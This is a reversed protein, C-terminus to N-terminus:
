DDEDTGGALVRSAGPDQSGGPRPGAPRGLKSAKILFWPQRQESAVVGCHRVIRDLTAAYEAFVLGLRAEVEHRSLRDTVETKVPVCERQYRNRAELICWSAADFDTGDVTFSQAVAEVVAEAQEAMKLENANTRADLLALQDGGGRRVLAALHELHDGVRELEVTCRSLAQALLAQRRSLYGNALSRLFTQISSRIEDISHENRSIVRLGRRDGTRFSTNVCKFSDVCISACRGLERLTAQLADEPRGLLERALFTGAPEPSASRWARRALAAIPRIFPLALAAGVVMVLTHANATQRVLDPSSGELLPVFLRAGLAGVAANCVNFLTNCLAARRADASAGISAILATVTTGVHAGLVIPYTQHLSSFAGSGALVFTMGIVAGSSQVAGTVAAGVAIGGLLGSWTQGDVHSLFPALVDRYPVIAEGSIKMGLFLLGFGLLAEGALRWRGEPFVLYLAGGAAVAALAYDALRISILQMSLTTGVNAGFLVPLSATLSLLGANVFGVTMVTAASSHALVGATTGLALGRWRSATAAALMRRLRDGAATRLAASLWQMGVLFLVVGGLIEAIARANM